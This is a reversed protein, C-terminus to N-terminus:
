PPCVLSFPSVFLGVVNPLAPRAVALDQRLVSSGQETFVDNKELVMVPLSVPTPKEM